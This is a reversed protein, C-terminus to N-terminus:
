CIFAAIQRLVMALFIATALGEDALYGHGELARRVDAPAEPPAFPGTMSERSQNDFISARPEANSSKARLM